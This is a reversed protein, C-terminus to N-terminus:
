LFLERHLIMEYKDGVSLKGDYAAVITNNKIFKKSKSEIILKEIKVGYLIGNSKGVSNFPIVYLGKIEQYNDKYYERLIDKEVISVPKGTVPERLDNGTDRLGDITIEEDGMVLTVKCIDEDFTNKLQIYYIIKTRYSFKQQTLYAM